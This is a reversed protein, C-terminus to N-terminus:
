CFRVPRPGTGTTDLRCKEPAAVDMGRESRFHPTRKTKIYGTRWASCCEWHHSRLLTQRVLSRPPRKEKDGQSIGARFYHLMSKGKGLQIRCIRVSFSSTTHLPSGTPKCPSEKLNHSSTRAGIGGGIGFCERRCNHVTWLLLRHAPSLM